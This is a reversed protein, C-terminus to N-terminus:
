GQTPETVVADGWLRELDYFSRVEEQFVHVIVENLDLIIWKGEDYGEKRMIRINAANIKEIINDAIAKVQIYNRGSCIVFYDAIVSLKSIDLIVVNHAKKDEAAAAVLGAIQHARLAMLKGGLKNNM